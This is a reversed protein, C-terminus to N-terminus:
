KKTKKAAAGATKKAATGTTKKAATGATKKAATDATKKARSARVPKTPAAVDTRELQVMSTMFKRRGNTDFEITTRQQSLETITGPGYMEHNIRDNVSFAGSNKPM